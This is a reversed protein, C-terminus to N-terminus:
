RIAAFENAGMHVAHQNDIMLLM